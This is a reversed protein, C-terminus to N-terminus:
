QSIARHTLAIRTRSELKRPPNVIERVLITSEHANSSVVIGRGLIRPPLTPDQLENELFAVGDGPNLNADKGGDAILYHYVSVTLESEVAYRVRPMQEYRVEPVAAYSAIKLIPPRNLVHARSKAITVPFVSQVIHARTLTDGIAEVQAFAALRELAYERPVSDKNAQFHIKEVSWLEVMDGAKVQWGKKGAHFIVEDGVHTQLAQNVEGNEVSIWSADKRFQEADQLKPALLQYYRNFVTPPPTRRYIFRTSDSHNAILNSDSRNPLKGLNRRFEDERSTKGQAPIIGKPLSSDPPPPSSPRLTDAAQVQTLTDPVSTKSGSDLANIYLSDGPYIWHPDKIHKNQQWLDNWAFPDKLFQGSLDWMTDGKKVIYAGTALFACVILLSIRTFPRQM